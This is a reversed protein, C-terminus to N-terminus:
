FSDPCTSVHLCASMHCHTVQTFGRGRGRCREIFSDLEEVCKLEDKRESEPHLRHQLHLKRRREQEQQDDYREPDFGFGIGPDAFAQLHALVVAEVTFFISTGVWVGM